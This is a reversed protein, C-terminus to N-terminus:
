KFKAFNGFRVLGNKSRDLEGVVGIAVNEALCIPCRNNVQMVEFQCISYSTPKVALCTLGAKKDTVPHIKSIDSVSWVM